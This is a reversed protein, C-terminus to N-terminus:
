LPVERLYVLYSCRTTYQPPPNQALPHKCKVSRSLLKIYLVSGFVCGVLPLARCVDTHLSLDSSHKLLIAAALRSLVELDLCTTENWEVCVGMFLLFLTNIQWSGPPLRLFPWRDLLPKPHACSLLILALMQGSGEESISSVADTDTSRKNCTTWGFLNERGLCM